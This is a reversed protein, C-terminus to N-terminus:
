PRALLEILRDLEATTNYCHPSIRVRGGRQSIVIGQERCRRVLQRPDAGPVILSVIGSKEDPRRSSFVELGVAHARDCLYDTLQLVRESINAIGMGLLRELSAGLATIGAINLTGGEWRGTHPKFRLEIRSFDAWGVV